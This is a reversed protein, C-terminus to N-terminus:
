WTLSSTWWVIHQRFGGFALCIMCCPCINSRTCAKNLWRALPRRFYQHVLFSFVFHFKCSTIFWLDASIKHQCSTHGGGRGDGLLHVSAGDISAHTRKKNKKGKWHFGCNYQLCVQPQLAVRRSAWAASLRQRHPISIVLLIGPHFLDCRFINRSGSSKHLISVCRQQPRKRHSNILSVRQAWLWGM